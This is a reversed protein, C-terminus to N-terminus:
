LVGSCRFTLSWAVLGDVCPPLECGVNGLVASAFTCWCRLGSVVSPISGPCSGVVARLRAGQVWANRSEEDPIASLLLKFEAKPGKWEVQRQSLALREAISAQEIAAVTDVM